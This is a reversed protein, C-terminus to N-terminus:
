SELHASKKSYMGIPDLYTYCIQSIEYNHYKIEQNLFAMHQFANLDIKEENLAKNPTFFDSFEVLTIQINEKTLKHKIYTWPANDNGVVGVKLEIM